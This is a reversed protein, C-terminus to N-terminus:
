KASAATKTEHKDIDHMIERARELHKQATERGKRLTGQLDASAHRELVKLQDIMQQHGALQMGIFCADFERGEKSSLERQTSALCEDAMEHKIQVLMDVTAMHGADARNSKRNEEAATPEIVGTGGSTKSSRPSETRADGQQVASTADIRRNEFQTGGVKQLEKVFQQHEKELMQAFEKVEPSKSRKQALRAAAIENQNELVLCEAFHQDLTGSGEAHTAGETRAAGGTRPAGENRAAKGPNTARRPPADEAHIASLGLASLAIVALGFNFRSKVM